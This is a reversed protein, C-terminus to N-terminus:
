LRDHFVPPFSWSAVAFLCACTSLVFSFFSRIIARHTAKQPRWQTAGGEGDGPPREEAGEGEKHWGKWSPQEFHLCPRPWRPSPHRCCVCDPDPLAQPSPSATRAKTSGGGGDIGTKSPPLLEAELPAIWYGASVGARRERGTADRM